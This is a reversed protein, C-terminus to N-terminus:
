FTTETVHPRDQRGAGAQDCRFALHRLARATPTGPDATMFVIQQDDEPIALVDCNIRLSGLEPHTM